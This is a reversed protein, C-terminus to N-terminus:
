LFERVAILILASITVSTAVTFALWKLMFINITRNIDRRVDMEDTM